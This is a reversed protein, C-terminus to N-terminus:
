SFSRLFSIVFPLVIINGREEKLVVATATATIGENRREAIFLAAM